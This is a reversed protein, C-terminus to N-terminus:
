LQNNSKRVKEPKCLVEKYLYVERYFDHKNKNNDFLCHTFLSYGCAKQKNIKLTFSKKPSIKELLSKTAAHFVFPINM